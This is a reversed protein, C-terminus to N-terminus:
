PEHSLFCEDACSMGVHTCPRAEPAASHVRGFACISLSSNCYEADCAHIRSAINCERRRSSGMLSQTSHHRSGRRREIRAHRPEETHGCRQARHRHRNGRCCCAHHHRRGLSHRCCLECWEHCHAASRRDCRSPQQQWCSPTRPSATPLRLSCCCECRCCFCCRCFCGGDCSGFCRCRSWSCAHEGQTTDDRSIRGKNDNGAATATHGETDRGKGRQEM